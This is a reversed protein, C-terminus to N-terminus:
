VLVCDVFDELSFLSGVNMGLEHEFDRKVVQVVKSESLYETREIKDHDSLREAVEDVEVVECCQRTDPEEEEPDFGMFKLDTVM